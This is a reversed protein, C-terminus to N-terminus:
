CPCKKQCEAATDWCQDDCCCFRDRGEYIVLRCSHVVVTKLIRSDARTKMSACENVEAEIIDRKGICLVCVSFTLIDIQM